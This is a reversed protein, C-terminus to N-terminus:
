KCAYLYQATICYQDVCRKSLPGQADRNHIACANRAERNIVRMDGGTAQIVAKDQELDAVLATTACGVASVALFLVLIRM